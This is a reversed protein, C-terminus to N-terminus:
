RLSFFQEWNLYLILKGSSSNEGAFSRGNSRLGGAGLVCQSWAWDISSFNPLWIVLNIWCFFLNRFVLCSLLLISLLCFILKNVNVWEWCKYTDVNHWMAVLIVYIIDIIIQYVWLTWNSGPCSISRWQSLRNNLLQQLPSYMFCIINM